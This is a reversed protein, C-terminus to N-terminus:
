FNKILYKLIMNNFLYCPFNEIKISIEKISKTMHKIFNLKLIFM